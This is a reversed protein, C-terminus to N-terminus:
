SGVRAIRSMVRRFRLPAVEVPSRGAGAVCITISLSSLMKM